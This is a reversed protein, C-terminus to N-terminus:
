RVVYRILAGSSPAIFLVSVWFRFSISFGSHGSAGMRIVGRVRISCRIM